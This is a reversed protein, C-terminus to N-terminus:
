NKIWTRKAPRPLRSLKLLVNRQFQADEPLFFYFNFSTFARGCAIPVINRKNKRKTTFPILQTPNETKSSLFM